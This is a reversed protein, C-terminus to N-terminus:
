KFQYSSLPKQSKQDSQFRIFDVIMQEDLKRMAMVM